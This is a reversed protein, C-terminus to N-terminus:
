DGTSLDRELDFGNFIMVVTKNSKGKSTSLMVKRVYNPGDDPLYGYKVLSDQCLKNAIVANDCDRIAGKCFETTSIVIPWTLKKPLKASRFATLFLLHWKDAIEKRWTWHRGAWYQNMSPPIEDIEIRFM